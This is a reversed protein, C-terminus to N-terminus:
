QCHPEYLKRKQSDAIVMEKDFINPLDKKLESFTDSVYKQNPATKLSRSDFSKFM